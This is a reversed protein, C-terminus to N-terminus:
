IGQRFRSFCRIYSCIRDAISMIIKERRNKFRKENLDQELRPRSLGLRSAIVEYTISMRKAVGDIYIYEGAHIVMYESCLEKLRTVYKKINEDQYFVEDKIANAANEVGKADGPHVNRQIELAKEIVDDENKDVVNDAKKEKKEKEEKKDDKEKKVRKDDNNIDM